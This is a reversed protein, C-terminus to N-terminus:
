QKKPTKEQSKAYKRRESNLSGCCGAGIHLEKAFKLDKALRCRYKSSEKYLFPCEDRVHSPIVLSGDYLKDEAVYSVACRAKKCCYGCGVCDKVAALERADMILAIEKTEECVWSL